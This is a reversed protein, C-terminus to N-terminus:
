VDKLVLQSLEVLKRIQSGRLATIWDLGSEKQFDEKIRTQTIM